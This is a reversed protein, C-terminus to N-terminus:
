GGGWIKRPWSQVGRTALPAQSFANYASIALPIGAAFGLYSGYRPLTKSASALEEPTLAGHQTLWQLLKEGGTRGLATTGIATGGAALGGWTAGAPTHSPQQQVPYMPQPGTYYAVKEMVSGLELPVLPRESM